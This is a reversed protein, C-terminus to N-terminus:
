YHKRSKICLTPQKPRAQGRREVGGYRAGGRREPGTYRREVFEAEFCHKPIVALGAAAICLFTMFLREEIFRTDYMLRAVMRHNGDNEYIVSNLYGCVNMAYFKYALFLAITIMSLACYRCAKHLVELKKDSTYIRVTEMVAGM